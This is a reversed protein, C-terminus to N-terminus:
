VHARGIKVTEEYGIIGPFLTEGRHMKSILNTRMEDKVPQVTYGSDQLAGLTAPRKLNILAM